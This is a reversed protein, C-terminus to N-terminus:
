KMKIDYIKMIKDTNGLRHMAEVGICNTLKVYLVQSTM